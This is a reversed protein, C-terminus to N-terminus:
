NIMSDILSDFFGQLFIAGTRVGPSKWSKCPEPLALEKNFVDALLKEPMYLLILDLSYVLWQMCNIVESEAINSVQAIRYSLAIDDMFLFDPRVDDWLLIIDRYYRDFTVSDREFNHLPTRDNHM